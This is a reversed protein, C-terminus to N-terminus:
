LGLQGGSIWTDNGPKVPCDLIGPRHNSSRGTLGPRHCCLPLDGSCVKEDGLRESRRPQGVDAPIEVIETVHFVVFPPLKNTCHGPQTADLKPKIVPVLQRLM